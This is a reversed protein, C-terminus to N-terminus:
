QPLQVGSNIEGSEGYIDTIGRYAKNLYPNMSHVHALLTIQNYMCKDGM